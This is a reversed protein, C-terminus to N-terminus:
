AKEAIKDRALSLTRRERRTLSHLGARAIKDLLPDVEEAIFQEANMQRYRRASVRRQHLAVQVASPRGFGLLHAYLWGAVCGGLYASHTVTGGHESLLLVAGVGVVGYALYKARLRLPVSFFPVATLELDPLITGYAVVVAAVGGSGALLVSTSSMLFLHALEGALAGSVYLFFFHRPGLISEVDRGLLYLAFMNGIFHWPGGHMFAATIFQWAYADQVGRECIGLFDHVFGPEVSELFLQAAFAALNIGILALLVVSPRHTWTRTFPTKRGSLRMDILRDYREKKTM